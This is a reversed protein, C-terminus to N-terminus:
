SGSLIAAAQDFVEPAIATTGGFLWAATASTAATTLYGVVSAPLAGGAPVLVIPGHAAGAVAGGALADPFAVGSALGVAKPSPFFAQAVLVATAFRDAGVFSTASRDAAAAPGGIAYRKVGANGALYSVTAPVASAGNTLVVVGNAAAAATGASLADAFTTGDAEFIASPPGLMNAVTIATGFRDPGAIRVVPFGLAAAANAVAPALAATGGLLYITGGPALVRRIEASVAPDLAASATLLLPGHKAVAFPTGGLADAFADSRVITVAAASGAAPFAAQAAAVSTTIRDGGAVRVLSLPPPPPPGGGAGGSGGTVTVSPPAALATLTGAATAQVSAAFISTGSASPAVAAGSAQASVDGYTVTVSAGVALTLGSVQIVQGSVSLTGTSATVFGAAANNGQQPTTWGAPVTISLKGSTIGTGPPPSYVFPLTTPASAMATTPSVTLTGTGDAATGVVVQPSTALATLTGSATAQQSATFTSTQASGPALAGSGGGSTDGYTITVAGDVPSSIGTVSIAGAVISVVGASSTTYGASSTTTSPASWGAPVAVKLAGGILRKGSPPTYTFVLTDHTAIGVNAPAVTMTGTGDGATTPCLATALTSGFPTGLGSAMDYGTGAAYLGGNSGAGDNNGSTVDHFNTTGATRLQYLRPNIFGVSQGCESDVLAMFSAWTPASASTGGVVIWSGSYFIRYGHAPDASASVDPVERCLVSTPAGCPTGSSNSTVVGPASQWSPMQWRSSVGGGGASVVHGGNGDPVIGDNWVAEPGSTSALSSGGVGTVEPQSAPDDVALTSPTNPPTNPAPNTDCDASGADGSAAFITQGQTAMMQFISREGNTFATNSGAECSGWSTSVVAATDDLAIKNYVDLVNTGNANTPGQYVHVSADPALGIIDEIDLAAEASGAGVGPGGDVNTTSVTTSVGYCTKYSSIDSALFPELEFIAVNIGAGRTGVTYTSTFGYYSALQPATFFASGSGTSAASCATPGSLNPVVAPEVGATDAGVDAAMPPAPHRFQTLDDLGVIGQVSSAFATPLRPAADNARVTRGSALAYHRISTHLATSITSVTGSVPVISGRPEGVTLGLARLGKSVRAITAPTPGFRNAFEGPALFHQYSPSGPTSVAAVFADVAAQNRPALVVDFPVVEAPAALGRDHAGIPMAPPAGVPTGDSNSGAVVGAPAAVSATTFACVTVAVAVAVVAAGAAASRGLAVTRFFPRM